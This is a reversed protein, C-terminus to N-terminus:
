HPQVQIAGIDAPGSNPRPCGRYDRSVDPRSAAGGILPSGAAPSFDAALGADAGVINGPIQATHGNSDSVFAPADTLNNSITSMTTPGQGWEYLASGRPGVFANGEIQLDSLSSTALVVQGNYNPNAGIFTNFLVHIGDLSGQYVQVGWGHKAAELINNVVVTQNAATGANTSTNGDIYIDHDAIEWSTFGPPYSPCASPGLRGVNVIHNAEVRVRPEQIYLGAIGYPTTACANGIDHIYNRLIETDHGGLFAGVGFSGGVPDTGTIDFGEVRVFGVDIGLKGLNVGYAVGSGGVLKAGLPSRAHFWVWNNASGGRNVQVVANAGPPAVYTGDNVIVEDGPALRDAAAQITRLPAADTGAATDNGNPDVVWL